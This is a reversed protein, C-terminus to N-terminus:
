GADSWQIGSPHTVRHGCDVRRGDVAHSETAATDRGPEHLLRKQVAVVERPRQPRRGLARSGRTLLPALAQQATAGAALVTADPRILAAHAGGDALWQGLPDAPAVEVVAVGALEAARLGGVGVTYDAILTFGDRVRDDLRTSHDLLANPCLRGVLGQRRIRRTRRLPPTASALVFRNMGPIRHMRRALVRRLVTGARGGGTMVRGVSVARRIMTEAHLRRESEYSDLTSEPLENRIAGALKWSLNAADRLGAGMGQGIFPPTLHAADGLLFVPGARWRDAIRAHFTYDTIRVLELEEAPTEGIWPRLLPCLEHVSRFDAASEGDLLQFEWRYRDEGIRMYTGARERSCVQHVGEWQGLDARTAIDIVLWRQRFGLDSMRAGIAQRVVSNAGDCGLVYDAFVAGPEGTTRDTLEVTVAGDGAIEHRVIGTVEVDGRFRASPQRALDARLLRELEPQDFMSAQPFGHIGHAQSRVFEALVEHGADLLRLGRSPRSIAAFESALGMRGLLRYIEDDLHVARPQPFVETWRDLVLCDVGHRALLAAATIGTPGAGIVAVSVRETM